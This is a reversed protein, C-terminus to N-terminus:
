YQKKDEMQDWIKFPEKLSDIQLPKLDCISKDHNSFFDYFKKDGFNFEDAIEPTASYYVQFM